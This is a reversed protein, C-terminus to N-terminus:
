DRTHIITAMKLAAAKLKARGLSDKFPRTKSDHKAVPKVPKKM